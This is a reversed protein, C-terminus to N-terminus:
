LLFKFRNTTIESLIVFHLQYAQRHLIHLASVDFSSSRFFLLPNVSNVTLLVNDGCMVSRLFHRAIANVALQLIARCLAHVDHLIAIACGFTNHHLLSTFATYVWFSWKLSVSSM